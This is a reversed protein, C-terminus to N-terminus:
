RESLLNRETQIRKEIKQFNDFSHAASVGGPQGGESALGRAQMAKDMAATGMKNDGDISTRSAIPNGIEKKSTLGGGLPTTSRAAGGGGGASALNIKPTNDPLGEAVGKSRGSGGALGASSIGSGGGIGPTGQAISPDTREGVAPTDNGNMGAELFSGDEKVRADNNTLPASPSQAAIDTKCQPNNPERSCLDGSEGGDGKLTALLNLLPGLMQQMSGSAAQIHKQNEAPEGTACYDRADKAADGGATDQSSYRANAESECVRICSNISKACALEVQDVQTKAKALDTTGKQVAEVTAKTGDIYPKMEALTKLPDKVNAKDCARQAAQAQQDCNAFAFDLNYFFLFLGFFIKTKM